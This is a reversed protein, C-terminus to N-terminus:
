ALKEQHAQLAEEDILQENYCRELFKNATACVKQRLKRRENDKVGRQLPMESVGEVETQSQQAKEMREFRQTYGDIVDLCHRAEGMWFDFNAVHGALQHSPLTSSRELTKILPNCIDDIYSLSKEGEVIINRM